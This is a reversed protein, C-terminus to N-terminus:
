IFTTRAIPASCRSHHCLSRTVATAATSLSCGSRGSRTLSPTTDGPCSLPSGGVAATVVAVAARVGRAWLVAAFRRAALRPLRHSVKVARNELIHPHAECLRRYQRLLAPRGVVRRRARVMLLGAARCCCRRSDCSHTGALSVFAGGRAHSSVSRTTVRTTAAPKSARATAVASSVASSCAPLM